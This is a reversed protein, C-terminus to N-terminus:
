HVHWLLKQLVNFCTGMNLLLSSCDVAAFEWRGQQAHWGRFVWMLLTLLSCPHLHLTITLVMTTCSRLPKPHVVHPCATKCDHAHHPCIVIIVSDDTTTVIVLCTCVAVSIKGAVTVFYSFNLNLIVHHYLPLSLWCLLTVPYWM